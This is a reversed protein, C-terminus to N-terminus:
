KTVTFTGVQYFGTFIYGKEEAHDWEVEIGTSILHKRATRYAVDLIENTDSGDAVPVVGNWQERGVNAFRIFM